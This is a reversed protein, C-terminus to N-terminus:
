DGRLRFFQQPGTLANTFPSTAGPLNTFTGTVAPASQLSFGANTWSLVLENRLLQFDLRPPPISSSYKITAFETLGSAAFSEGTVFVNGSSDVAISRPQDDNNGPGSFRQAWLLVGASSYAVTAYDYYDPWQSRSASNGTVFVNGASDVAIASPGDGGNAPGNYRNTWLPVGDPSYKVTAYDPSTLGVNYSTGTVFVNGSSDVVIGTADDVDNAPGNYRNTWLPVGSNSYAITAYDATSYDSGSNSRGTVFVHGSSDLAIARAGDASNGPGDYHNTWLPAGSNSFAITAYDYNSGNYSSGTVFVNGNYDVAIAPPVDRNAPGNYRNTWLPVGANSYALTAYEGSSGNWSYGTVFVNGSIDVAIASVRDEDNGPGDYRNTWLPVGSNSYAITAYDATTYLQGSLSYGTVFVSGSNDAAIASAFSNYGLSGDYRNTWLPVGSPSYKVTAYVQFDRISNTWISYGTVFVNGSSDV